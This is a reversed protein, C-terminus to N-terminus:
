SSLNDIYHMGGEAQAQLSLATHQDHSHLIAVQTVIASGGLLEGLQNVERTLEAFERFRRGPVNSHDILGHWFQEAGVTASRWRFHVVMDVG